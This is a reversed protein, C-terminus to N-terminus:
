SKLSLIFSTGRKVSPDLSLTGGLKRARLACIPLGLRDGDTTLDGAQAFPEFLKERQDAPIGSGNDTVVFQYSGPGRKRFSLTIRGGESTYKAANDLLHSVIKSVEDANIPAFGRAGDVS